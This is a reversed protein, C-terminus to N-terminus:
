TREILRKLLVRTHDGVPVVGVAEWGDKGLDNLQKGWYDPVFSNPMEFGIYEWATTLHDVDGV